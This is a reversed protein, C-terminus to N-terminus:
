PTVWAIPKKTGRPRPPVRRAHISMSRGPNNARASSPNTAPGTANYRDGLFWGGAFLMLDGGINWGSEPGSTNFFRQGFESDEFAHELVDYAVAIGVAGLFPFGVLGFALGFAFHVVSWPDFLAENQHEKRIAFAIM